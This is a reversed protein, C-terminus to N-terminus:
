GLPFEALKAYAAVARRVGPVAVEGTTPQTRYLVLNDLRTPGLDLKSTLRQRAPTLFRGLTLHPVFKRREPPFGCEVAASECAAQLTVVSQPVTIGAWLVRAGDAASPPFTGLGQVTANIPPCSQAAKVLYPELASLREATTWGLFRLTLHMRRPNMWDVGPIEKELRIIEAAFATQLPKPLELALFACITGTGAAIKM